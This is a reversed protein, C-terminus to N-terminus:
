NRNSNWCLKSKKNRIEYNIGKLKKVMSDYIVYEDYDNLFILNQIECLIEYIEQKEQELHKVEDQIYILDNLCEEDIM